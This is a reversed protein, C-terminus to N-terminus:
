SNLSQVSGKGKREADAGFPAEMVCVECACSGFGAEAIVYRLMEAHRVNGSARHGALDYADLCPCRAM